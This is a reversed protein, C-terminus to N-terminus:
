GLAPNICGETSCHSPLPSGTGPFSTPPKRGHREGETIEVEGKEWEWYISLSCFMTMIWWSSGKVNELLSWLSLLPTKAKQLPELYSLIVAAHWFALPGLPKRRKCSVSKWETGAKVYLLSICLLVYSYSNTWSCWEFVGRFDGQFHPTIWPCTVKGSLSFKLGVRLVNCITM